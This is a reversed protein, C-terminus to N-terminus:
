LIFSPIDISTLMDNFSLLENVNNIFELKHDVVEIQAKVKTQMEVQIQLKEIKEKLALVCNHDAKM